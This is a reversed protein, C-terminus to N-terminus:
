ILTNETCATGRSPETDESREAPGSRDGYADPPFLDLGREFERPWRAGKFLAYRRIFRTFPRGDPTQANAFLLILEATSLQARVIRAYREKEADSLESHDIFSFVHYLNRFYHGFDSPAALCYRAFGSAMSQSRQENTLPPRSEFRTHEVLLAAGQRFAHLGSVHQQSEPFLATFTTLCERNLKLMQFFCSEFVDRSMTRNQAELQAKQGALEDRTLSLEQRQLRLEQRQLVIAVIVGGFALASFLAGVAAFGDGLNGERKLPLITFVSWASLAFVAVVVAFAGTLWRPGEYRTSSEMASCSFSRLTRRVDQDYFKRAGVSCAIAAVTLRRRRELFTM